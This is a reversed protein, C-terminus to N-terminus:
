YLSIGFTLLYAGFQSFALSTFHAKRVMLDYARITNKLEETDSVRHVKEILKQLQPSNIPDHIKLQIFNALILISVMLSFIASVLAMNRAIKYYLIFKEKKEKPAKLTNM